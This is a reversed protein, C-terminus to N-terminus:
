YACVCFAVEEGGQLSNSLAWRITLCREANLLLRHWCRYKSCMFCRRGWGWCWQMGPGLRWATGRQGDPRAGGFELVPLLAGAAEPQLWSSSVSPQFPVPSAWFPVPSAWAVLWRWPGEGCSCPAHSAGLCWSLPHLVQALAISLAEQPIKPDKPLQFHSNLFCPALLSLLPAVWRCPSILATPPKPGMLSVQEKPACLAAQGNSLPAKTWSRAWSRAAKPAPPIQKECLLAGRPSSVFHDPCPSNQM